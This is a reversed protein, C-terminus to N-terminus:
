ARVPLEVLTTIPHDVRHVTPEPQMAVYPPTPRHRVQDRGISSAEEGVTLTDTQRFRSQLELRELVGSGPNATGRPMPVQHTREKGRFLARRAHDTAWQNVSAM